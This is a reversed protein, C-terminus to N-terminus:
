IGYIADNALDDINKPDISYEKAKSKVEEILALKHEDLGYLGLKENLLDPTFRCALQGISSNLFATSLVTIESFDLTFSQGQELFEKTADFIAEGDESSVAYPSAIWAKVNIIKLLLVMLFKGFHYKIKIGLVQGVM